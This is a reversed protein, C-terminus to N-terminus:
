KMLSNFLAEFQFEENDEDEESKNMEEEAASIAFQLQDMDFKPNQDAEDYHIGEVEIDDSFGHEHNYYLVLTPEEGTEEYFEIAIRGNPASEMKINKWWIAPMEQQDENDLVNFENVLSENHKSIEIAAIRKKAKEKSESAGPITHMKGGKKYRVKYKGKESKIINYPMFNNIRKGLYGRLDKRKTRVVIACLWQRDVHQIAKEKKEKKDAVRSEQKVIWGAKATTALFGAM